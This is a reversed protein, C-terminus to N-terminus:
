VIEGQASRVFRESPFSSVFGILAALFFPLYLGRSDGLLSAILGLIAVAEYMSWRILLAHRVGKMLEFAPAIRPRLMAAKRLLMRSVAMAAFFLILASIQMTLILPERSVMLGLASDPDGKAIAFVLGGYLFIGALSAAWMLQLFRLTAQASAPSHTM